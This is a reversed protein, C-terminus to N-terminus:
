GDGDHTVTPTARADADLDQAELLWRRAIRRQRGSSFQQPIASEPKVSADGRSGRVAFRRQAGTPYLESGVFAVVRVVVDADTADDPRHSGDAADLLAAFSGVDIYAATPLPGQRTDALPGHEDRDWDPRPQFTQCQGEREVDVMVAAVHVATESMNAIVCRSHLDFGGAQHILLHPRRQKRYMQFFLQLYLIWIVLMGLSSLTSLVEGYETLWELM